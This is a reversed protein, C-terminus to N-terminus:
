RGAGAHCACIIQHTHLIGGHPFDLSPPKGSSAEGSCCTTRWETQRRAGCRFSKSTGLIETFYRGRVRERTPGQAPEQLRSVQAVPEGLSWFAPGSSSTDDLFPQTMIWSAYSPCPTKCERLHQRKWALFQHGYRSPACMRLHVTCSTDCIPLMTVMETCRVLWKWMQECGPRFLRRRRLHWTTM